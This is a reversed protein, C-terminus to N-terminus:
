ANEGHLAAPREESETRPMIGAVRSWDGAPVFGMGAAGASAADLDLRDGVVVIASPEVGWKHALASFALASPKLVGHEETAVRDEFLDPALGIAELREDIRPHDSVVGLRVGRSRLGAIASELGPRARARDALLRVLEPLFRERYWTAALSPEVGALRGLELGLAGRLGAVDGFERGRLSRRAAGFRRLLRLDRRLRWTLRLRIGPLVYLTGDLDFIVGRTAVTRDM